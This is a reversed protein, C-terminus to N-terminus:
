DLLKQMGYIVMGNEKLVLEDLVIVPLYELESFGMYEGYFIIDKNLIIDFYNESVAPIFHLLGIWKNGGNDVIYGLISRTGDAELIKTQSIVCEIYIKDGAFETGAVLSNYKSHVAMEYGNTFVVYEKETHIDYKQKIMLALEDKVTAWRKASRKGSSTDPGNFILTAVKANALEYNGTEIEEYIESLVIELRQNEEEVKHNNWIGRMIVFVIVLSFIVVEWLINESIQWRNKTSNSVKEESIGKPYIDLHAKNTANEIEFKDRCKM